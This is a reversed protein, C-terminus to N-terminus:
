IKSQLLPSSNQVENLTQQQPSAVAYALKNIEEDKSYNPVGSPSSLIPHLRAKTPPGRRDSPKHMITAPPELHTGQAAEDVPTHSREKTAQNHGVRCHHQGAAEQRTPTPTLADEHQRALLLESPTTIDNLPNSRPEPKRLWFNYQALLEM